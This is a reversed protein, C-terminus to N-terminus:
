CTHWYSTHAMSYEIYFHAELYTVKRPAENFLLTLHRLTDFISPHMWSFFLLLTCSCSHLACTHPFSSLIACPILSASFISACTHLLPTQGLFYSNIHLSIPSYFVRTLSSLLIFYMSPFACKILSHVLFLSFPTISLSLHSLPIGICSFSCECTHSFLPLCACTHSIFPSIRMTLPLPHMPFFPLQTPSLSTLSLTLQTNTLEGVGVKM